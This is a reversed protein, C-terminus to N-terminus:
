TTQATRRRIFFGAIAGAAVIAGLGGLAWPMMGSGGHDGAATQEKEGHAATGPKPAASASSNSGAPNPLPFVNAPGPDGEHDLLVMRPRVIGYGLYESPVKGDQPKGATEILARLVQDGTWDPHASWVLAASASAIATAQSTGWSSCLGTSNPCHMPIDDGPAALAVQPGHTSWKTVTLNKDVAGVAVVGYMSAPATLLNAKDGDNGTAAFMLVGKSNAYNVASRMDPSEGKLISGFSMNIIRAGHDVAYRIYKSIVEGGFYYKLPLIKARPALGQIGGDAGTGAILAAMETGHSDDSGAPAKGKNLDASPLLQGRLEPRSGDIEGDIVAVTVGQGQSVKWMSDAQMRDLYWQHSRADDAFTGSAAATSALTFSGLAALLSALRYAAKATSTRMAGNGGM